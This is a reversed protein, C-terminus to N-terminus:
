SQPNGSNGAEALTFVTGDAFSLILRRYLEATSISDALADHAHKHPIGYLECLFPLNVLRFPVRMGHAVAIDNIFLASTLTDRPHSFFYKGFDELGLWDTLFGKEYAWNHALPVLSRQFPLRLDSVWNALWDSVQFQDPALRLDDLSLGSVKMAESEAREPHEPRISHYFPRAGALPRYDSDLPQIGIQVIEHFGALRGTTEVDIAVLVNGNMNAPQQEYPLM